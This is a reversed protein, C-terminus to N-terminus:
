LRKNIIIIGPVHEDLSLTIFGVVVGRGTIGM